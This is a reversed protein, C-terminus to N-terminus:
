VDTEGLVQIGSNPHCEGHNRYRDDARGMIRFSTSVDKEGIHWYMEKESKYDVPFGPRPLLFKGVQWNADSV